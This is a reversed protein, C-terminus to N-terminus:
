RSVVMGLMADTAQTPSLDQLLVRYGEGTISSELAGRRLVGDRLLLSVVGTAADVEVAFRAAHASAVVHRKDDIGVLDADLFWGEAMGRFRAVRWQPQGGARALLGDLREIWQARLLPDIAPRPREAVPPAPYSGEARVLVPLRAEFPRGDVGPFALVFGDAPLASHEGRVSREGDFFRLELRGSTRDLVATMRAATILAVDIGESDVDLMEVEELGDPGLRSARLFRPGLFGEERLCAHLAILCERVGEPTPKGRRAAAAAAAEARAAAERNRQDLVAQVAALQEKTSTLELALRAFEVADTGGAAAPAAPAPTPAAPAGPAPSAARVAALEQRATEADMRANRAAVEFGGAVEALRRTEVLLWTVAAATLLWPLAVALRM